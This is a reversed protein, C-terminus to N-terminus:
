HCCRMRPATDNAPQLAALRRWLRAPLRALYRAAAVLLARATQAREFRARAELRARLAGDRLYRDLDIGNM